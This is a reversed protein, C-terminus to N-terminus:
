IKIKLKTLHIAIYGMEDESVVVKLENEIIKSIDYALKYEIIYREKVETLLNNIITKNNKVREIVGKLHMVFRKYEFSYPDLKIDLKRGVYDLIKSIVKTNELAHSKSEESHGGCIHFTLFGIESDPIEMNLGEKLINVAKKAIEYEKPYLLKTEELFPNIITINDKLRKITFQIHDILGVHIKSDLNEGLKDKAMELIKDTLELIKPDLAEIFRNADEIKLSELSIFSAEIKHLEEIKDGRKKGFGIGKGTLIYKTGKSLVLIVNNSLIKEIKIEGM